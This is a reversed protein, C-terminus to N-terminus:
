TVLNTKLEDRIEHLVKFYELTNPELINDLQYPQERLVMDMYEVYQILSKYQSDYGDVIRLTSEYNLSQIVLIYVFGINLIISIIFFITLIM